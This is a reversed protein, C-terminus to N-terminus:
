LGEDYMRRALTVYFRELDEKSQLEKKRTRGKGEREMRRKMESPPSQPPNPEASIESKSLGVNHMAALASLAKDDSDSKTSGVSGNDTKIKEIQRETKKVLESDKKGLIGRPDPVRDILWDFVVSLTDTSIRVTHDDKQRELERKEARVGEKSLVVASSTSAQNVCSSCPIALPSTDDTPTSGSSKAEMQDNHADREEVTHQHHKHVSGAKKEKEEDAKNKKWAGVFRTWDGFGWGDGRANPQPHRNTTSSPLPLSGLGLVPIAPLDVGFEIGRAGRMEWDSYFNTCVYLMLHVDVSVTV